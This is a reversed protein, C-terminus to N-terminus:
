SSRPVRSRVEGTALDLTVREWLDPPDYCADITMLADKIDVLQIGDVAVREAYWTTRLNPTISRINEWDVILLRDLGPPLVFRPGPTDLEWKFKFAGTALDLAYVDSYTGVLAMGAQQWVIATTDYSYTNEIAAEWITRGTDVLAVVARDSLGVGPRGGIWQLRNPNEPFPRVELNM